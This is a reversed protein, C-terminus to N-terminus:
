LPLKRLINFSTESKESKKYYKLIKLYKKKKKYLIPLFSEEPCKFYLVLYWM